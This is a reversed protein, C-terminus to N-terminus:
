LDIFTPKGFERFSCRAKVEEAKQLTKKVCSNIDEKEVRGSKLLVDEVLSASPKIRTTRANKEKELDDAMKNQIKLKAGVIKLPYSRRTLCNLIVSSPGVKASSIRFCGIQINM